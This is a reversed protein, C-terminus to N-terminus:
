TADETDETHNPRTRQDPMVSVRVTKGAPEMDTKANNRRTQTHCVSASLFHGIRHVCAIWHFAYYTNLRM